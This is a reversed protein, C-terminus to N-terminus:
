QQAMFEILKSFDNLDCEMCLGLPPMGGKGNIVNEVLGSKGSEAILDAWKDKDGALPAGTAMVTHCNRCSRQYVEAVIPDSPMLSQAIALAQQEGQVGDCAALSIISLALM